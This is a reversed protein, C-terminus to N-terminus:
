RWNETMQMPRKGLKRAVRENEIAEALKALADDNLRDALPIALTGLIGARANLTAAWARIM